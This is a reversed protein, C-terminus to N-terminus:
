ESRAPALSRTPADRLPTRRSAPTDADECAPEGLGRIELDDRVAVVSALHRMVVTVV